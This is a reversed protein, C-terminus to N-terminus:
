KTKSGFRYGISAGISLGSLDGNKPVITGNRTNHFPVHIISYDAFLDFFLSNKNILAGLKFVGGYGWRATKHIVYPSDNKTHTYAALAGAGTYLSLRRINYFYKLGLGMPICYLTTRSRDGTSHGRQYLFSGSSFLYLEKWTKVSKELTYLGQASGYIERVTKDTPRFYAAKAETLIEIAHLSFATFFFFISYSLIRAM